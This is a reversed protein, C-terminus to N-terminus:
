IVVKFQNKIISWKNTYGNSDTCEIKDKSTSKGYILCLSNTFIDGPKVNFIEIM